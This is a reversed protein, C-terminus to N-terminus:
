SGGGRARVGQDVPRDRAPAGGELVGRAPPRSTTYREEQVSRSRVPGGAQDVALRVGATQSIRLGTYVAPVAEFSLGFPELQLADAGQSSLLTGFTLALYCGRKTPKKPNISISLTLARPERGPNLNM